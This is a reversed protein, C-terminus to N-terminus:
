EIEKYTFYRLIQPKGTENKIGFNISKEEHNLTIEALAITSLSAYVNGNIAVARSAVSDSFNSNFDCLIAQLKSYDYLDLEQNLDTIKVTSGAPVIVIGETTHYTPIVKKGTILGSDLIATKGERIDNADATITTDSEALVGAIMSGDEAELMFTRPTVPNGGIVNGVIM